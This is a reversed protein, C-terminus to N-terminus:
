RRSGLFGIVLGVLAAIGVAQWPKARVYEDAGEVAHHYQDLAYSEASMLGDKARRLNDSLRARAAAVGEGSYSATTRMLEEADAALTRLDSALKDRTGSTDQALQNM